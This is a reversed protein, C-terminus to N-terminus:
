LACIMLPSIVTGSVLHRASGPRGAWGHFVRDARALMGSNARIVVAGRAQLFAVVGKQIEAERPGANARRGSTLGALQKATLHLRM